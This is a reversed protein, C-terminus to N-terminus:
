FLNNSNFSKITDNSSEERNLVPSIHIYTAHFYLNLVLNHQDLVFM